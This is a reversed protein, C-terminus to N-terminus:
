NGFSYRVTVGYQRPAGYISAEIGASPGNFAGQAIYTEDFLNKAYLAVEVNRSASTWALRANVITYSPFLVDVFSAPGSHFLDASATLDADGVPLNYEAGLSYSHKAVFDFGITTGNPLYPALAAPLNINKSKPDLLSGAFTFKFQNGVAIFGDVDIGKVQTEGAAVTLAGNIPDNGPNCDGDPSTPIAGGAALCAPVSTTRLGSLSFATDSYNGLFASVNLRARLGGGMNFDSRFGAEYDTVKEPGFGQFPALRGALTPSNLGGSRYGRRTVAYLFLSDNAQWELSAQWTPADSKTSNTTAGLILPNRNECDAPTLAGQTTVDNGVCSRAKDWTYRAGVDLKLGPLVSDLKINANAFVATSEETLFNYGFNSIYQSANAPSAAVFQKAGTGNAGFPKSKLYFGGVLLDVNGDLVSGKLQLEDTYQETHIIASGNLVTFQAGAFPGSTSTLLPLGDSNSTYNLYSRRYGFINTVSFEPAIEIDTRNTLGQRRTEVLPRADSETVRVSRAQQRALAALASDRIGFVAPLLPAVPRIGTLIVSDGNYKNQYYDYTTVNKVGAIPEILLGIRFARSNEGDLDAGSVLDRTWGDRKNLMGSIRIAVKQDIIPASIAGELQRDDYNGYGAQAYGSVEYDPAKPYFLLAGGTTNRGFLTGQPGKLVQVSQMDFTPVGSGFTPLPVDAFYSLVAPPNFGSRAKSQGRIQFVSNERGGSGGLYVGPTKIMLDSTQRIGASRLTDDSFATISVPTSQLKEASRRATVIIDDSAIGSDDETVEVTATTATEQAKAAGPLLFASLATASVGLRISRSIKM